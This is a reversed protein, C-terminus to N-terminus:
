VWDIFKNVKKKTIILFRSQREALWHQKALLYTSGKFLRPFTLKQLKETYKLVRAEGVAYLFATIGIMTILHGITALSHWGTFMRPYDHYRRPLGNYGVWYLPIFTLWQGATWCVYHIIALGRAYTTNFFNNFYFYIAAFIGSFTACSFMFHFHAVVYFTDHVFLNLGVHSLWLGTLGGSLFFGLFSMIFVFPVDVQLSGNLLTLTWNVIKVVAPLSIMVTITSYLSRSRHDLGVLYMHHGWVLFGMYAMVYTAWVLHNKSAIRRTNYYPLIMNVIGFVPIIVVYVEPHGFFWFLHHFLIVDGGYAYDFFSTHLHRDFMLMMMAGGLVPTIAALMRMVLLLTITIFPLTNKRNRLGFGSLARRTILLNTFSITSSVGAFIVVVTAIDQSGVGTFRTQSSFPTIFTWGSMVYTPSNCKQNKIIIPKHRSSNKVTTWVNNSWRATIEWTLLLDTWNKLMGFAGGQRYSNRGQNLATLNDANQWITTTTNSDRNQTLKAANKLQTNAYKIGRMQPAVLPNRREPNFNHRIAYRLLAQLANLQVHNDPLSLFIARDIIKRWLLVTPKKKELLVNHTSYHFTDRYKLIAHRATELSCHQLIHNFKAQGAALMVNKPKNFNVAQLMGFAAPRFLRHAKQHALELRYLYTQHKSLSLRAETTYIYSSRAEFAWRKMLIKKLHQDYLMAWIMPFYYGKLITIIGSHASARNIANEQIENQLNKNTLNTIFLKYVETSKFDTKTNLNNKLDFFLRGILYEHTNWANDSREGKWLSYLSQPTLPNVVHLPQTNILHNPKILIECQSGVRKKIATQMDVTYRAGWAKLVGRHKSNAQMLAARTAFSQWLTRQYNAILHNSNAPTYHRQVCNKLAALNNLSELLTQIKKRQSIYAGYEVKTNEITARLHGKRLPRYHARFPQPLVNYRTLLAHCKQPFLTRRIQGGSNYHQIDEWLGYLGQAERNQASLVTNLSTFLENYVKRLNANTYSTFKSKVRQRLAETNPNLTSFSHVNYLRDILKDTTMQAYLVQTTTQELRKLLKVSKVADRFGVRLHTALEALLTLGNNDIKQRGAALTASAKEMVAAKLVILNIFNTMSQKDYRAFLANQVASVNLRALKAPNPQDTNLMLLPRLNQCVAPNYYVKLMNNRVRNNLYAIAPNNVTLANLVGANLTVNLAPQKYLSTFIKKNILVTQINKSHASVQPLINQANQIIRSRLTSAQAWTYYTAASAAAQLVDASAQKNLMTIPNLPKTDIYTAWVNLAYKAKNQMIPHKFMITPAQTKFLFKNILGVHSWNNIVRSLDRTTAAGKSRILCLGIAPDKSLRNFLAAQSGKIAYQLLHTQYLLKIKLKQVLAQSAVIKLAVANQVLDTQLNNFNKILWSTNAKYTFDGMHAYQKIFTHRRKIIALSTLAEVLNAQKGELTTTKKLIKIIWYEPRSLMFQKLFFADLVQARESVKKGLARFRAQEPKCLKCWIPLRLMRTLQMYATTQKQMYAFLQETKTFKCFQFQKDRKAMERTWQLYRLGTTRKQSELHKFVKIISIKKGVSLFYPNLTLKVMDVKHPAYSMITSLYQETDFYTKNNSLAGFARMWRHLQWQTILNRTSIAQIKRLMPQQKDLAELAIQTRFKREDNIANLVTYRVGKYKGLIYRASNEVNPLNSLMDQKTARIKLQNLKIQDIHNLTEIVQEVAIPRDYKTSFYGDYPDWSKYTQRRLFAPKGFLLFGAPLIWFGISNLRPYAVDKSGVHYPIFFNAMTGFVIPIVVYFIMVLGHSTIVQIYRVSDGKFFHSGPQSLELRIFTALLAGALGSIVTFYLYNLAIKKHNITYLYKKVVHVRLVHLQFSRAAARNKITLWERAVVQKFELYSESTRINILSQAQLQLYQFMSTALATFLERIISETKTTLNCIIQYNTIIKTQEVDDLKASPNSNIAHLYEPTTSFKYPIYFVVALPKVICYVPALVLARVARNFVLETTNLPKGTEVTPTIINLLTELFCKLTIKYRSLFALLM